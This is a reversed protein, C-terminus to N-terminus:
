VKPFLDGDKTLQSTAKLQHSATCQLLSCSEGQPMWSAYFSSIPITNFYRRLFPVWDDLKNGSPGFTKKKKTKKSNTKKETM